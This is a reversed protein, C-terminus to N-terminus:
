SAFASRRAENAARHQKAKLAVILASQKTAPGMPLRDAVTAARSLVKTWLEGGASGAPRILTRQLLPVHAVYHDDPLPGLVDRHLEHVLWTGHGTHGMYELFQPVAREYCHEARLRRDFHARFGARRLRLGWDRDQNAAATFAPNAPSVELAHDRRISVNGGWLGRLVADGDAEWASIQAEYWHSYLAAPRSDRVLDLVVPMYGQVVLREREIHHAQHGAVLGPCVRVDDDILLVVESTSAEVAVARAPGLALRETTPVLRLRADDRALPELLAMTDGCDNVVVVVEDPDDALAAHVISRLGATRGHSQLAITLTPLTM